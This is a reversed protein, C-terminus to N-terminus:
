ALLDELLVNSKVMVPMKSGLRMPLLGDIQFSNIPVKPPNLITTWLPMKLLHNWRKLIAEEKSLWDQFSAGWEKGHVKEEDFLTCFVDPCGEIRLLNEIM